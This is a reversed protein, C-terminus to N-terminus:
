ARLGKQREIGHICAVLAQNVPTPVGLKRGQAVIAGNIFDVETPRNKELSQLMSAKFQPPLGARAKEWPAAPDASSVAVGTARAVAMAEAVAAQACAALQPEAYLGGYDLGTIGSLAGTAVNVLIKDWMATQINTSVQTALGAAEFVAAIRQARDSTGGALEGIVTEKGRAGV